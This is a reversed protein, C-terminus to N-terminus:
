ITLRRYYKESYTCIKYMFDHYLHYIVNTTSIIIIGTYNSCGSIISFIFQHVKAIASIKFIEVDIYKGGNVSSNLRKNQCM